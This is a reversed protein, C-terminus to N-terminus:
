FCIKLLDIMEKDVLDDIGNGISSSKSSQNQQAIIQQYIKDEDEGDGDISSDDDSCLDESSVSGRGSKHHPLDDRSDEENEEEIRGPINM